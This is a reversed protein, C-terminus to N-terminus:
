SATDPCLFTVDMELWFSYGLCQVQVIVLCVCNSLRIGM